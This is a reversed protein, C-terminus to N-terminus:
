ATYRLSVRSKEEKDASFCKREAIHAFIKAPNGASETGARNENLSFQSIINLNSPFGATSQQLECAIDTGASKCRM